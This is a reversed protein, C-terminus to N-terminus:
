MNRASVKVLQVMKLLDKKVLVATLVKAIPANLTRTVHIPIGPASTSIQRTLLNNHNLPSYNTLKM